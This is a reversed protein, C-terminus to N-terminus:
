LLHNKDGRNQQNTNHKILAYVDKLPMDFDKFFRQFRRYKSTGLVKHKTEVEEDCMMALNVSRTAILGQILSTM